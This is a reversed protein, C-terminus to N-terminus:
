VSVMDANVEAFVFTIDYPRKIEGLKCAAVSAPGCRYINNSKEQPTADIVQWGDYEKGLDPRSMWVESWVHFNWVSDSYEEVIKGNKDVFHDITISGDSDHASQFNTVVRSPIGM